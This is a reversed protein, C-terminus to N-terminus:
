LLTNLMWWEYVILALYGVAVGHLLTAARMVRFVRARAVAVLLLIGMGTLGLKIAAFAQPHEELIFALFPNAETAGLGILTLTLFADAVSLLLITVSLVLLHPSHWDVVSTHDEARRGARRRPKLGGQVFTRLSIRRRDDRRRDEFGLIAAAIDPNALRNM